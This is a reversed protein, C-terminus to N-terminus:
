SKRFNPARRELFAAVGEDREGSALCLAFLTREYEIGALLDVDQSRLVADRAAALSVPGKAKWKACIARAAALLEGAPHVSNVLGIRHAESADIAEGTTIMEMAKGLGVLRTLRQTGGSGPIVGLNVEPLGLRAGEVAIRLTCALALELGAGLCFGNVAAISPMRMTEIFRPLERRVASGTSLESAVSRTKLENIDAGASFARTGEGTVIVCDAAGSAELDRLAHLCEERMQLSMANRREPDALTVLAVRDDIALKIKGYSM